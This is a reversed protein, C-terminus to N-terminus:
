YTKNFLEKLNDINVQKQNLEYIIRSASKKSLNEYNIDVEYVRRIKLLHKILKKQSSSAMYDKKLGRSSIEELLILLQPLYLVDELNHLIVKKKLEEEGNQIFQLYLDRCLKGDIVDERVIGIHKEMDKLSVGKLGLSKGYPTILRYFDKHKKINPADINLIAVRKLLFPEDFALGNFSCWYRRNGCIRFFESIVETEDQGFIVHAKYFEGQFKGISIAFIKDTEKNFGTTELDFFISQRLNYKEIISEELPAKIVRSIVEM